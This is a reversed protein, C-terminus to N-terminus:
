RKEPGPRIAPAPREPRECGHRSALLFGVGALVLFVSLFQGRTLGAVLPADPERFLECFSRLLGYGIFFVGTLVGDRLRLRTRMLWLVAFLVAGELAAEYLQSPHRPELSARLLADLGPPRGAAAVAEISDWGANMERAAALVRGVVEPPADYLAKPFLVAWPVHAVRGYLEGNIFNAVRGFFLGVPAVVVLNDGLNLWPLGHRRAHWLSYLALGAI